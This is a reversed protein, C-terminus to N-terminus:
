SARGEISAAFRAKVEPWEAALISYRKSDRARLDTALRHSRLLGECRAGIKEIAAASRENRADTHFCVRLLDWTEFAHALLLRKAEANVGGGITQAALWTFGIEGADPTGRGARTHDAPWNWRELDFFRTSGVAKGDVARVIAFPLGRGAEWQARADTVYRTMEAEGDPVFSWRYFSRDQAAAECLAPVHGFDLPELRIGRGSLM